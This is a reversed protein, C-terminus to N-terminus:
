QSILRFIQGITKGNGNAPQEVATPRLQELATEKPTPAPKLNRMKAKAESLLDQFREHDSILRGLQVSYQFTNRKNERILFGLVTAMDADTFGSQHFDYLSREYIQYKSERGTMKVHVAHINRLATETDTM